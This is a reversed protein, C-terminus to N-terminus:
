FSRVTESGPQLPVAANAEIEHWEEWANKILLRSVEDADEVPTASLIQWRAYAKTYELNAEVTDDYFTTGSLDPVDPHGQGVLRLRVDSEPLFLEPDFVLKPSSGRKVSWAYRYIEEWVNSGRDGVEKYVKSLEVIRTHLDYELINANVILRADDFQSNVASGASIEADIDISKPNEDITLDAELLEWVDAGDAHTDTVATSVGGDGIRLLARDAVDPKVRAKFSLDKESWKDFRRIAVSIKALNSGDSTLVVSSDGMYVDDADTDQASTTNSGLTWGDPLGSTFREMAGTGLANGDTSLIDNMTLLEHISLDELPVTMGMQIGRRIASRIARFYVLPHHRRTIFYQDTSDFSTVATGRIDVSFASESFAEINRIVGQNTGNYVCLWAGELENAEEFVLNGTDILTDTDGGTATGEVLLDGLADALEIALQGYTIADIQAM